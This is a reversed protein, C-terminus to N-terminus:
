TEVGRDLWVSSRNVMWWLRVSLLIAAFVLSTLLGVWIGIPGLETHLGFYFAAPFGVLWYSIGTLLMPVYVDKLGRLLQNAAVQVADFMMFAAAIPLFLGILEFVPLNKKDELNLYARAVWEPFLAIIIAFCLSVFIALGITALSALRVRQRDGAGAALGIRVGGAMSLGLPIMFVLAVVNLSIQYAAMELVGLVGMLLVCANFLMGEFFTTVSIPIGLRVLEIFRSWDLSFFNYFIEFEAAQKQRYCYFLLIAFSIGYALSSAIGAGVLGLSPAGFHGFILIYNLGGNLLTTFITLFLPFRTLALAALFNRLSWMGLGFVLSPALMVVYNRADLSLAPDQGFLIAAKEAHWFLLLVFPFIFLLEWLSMRVTHRVDSYNKPDRGLAQSVMPAVAMVPGMALMWVTFLVVVGLSSAALAEPGLRGIMLVDITFVLFGILQTMAMPVGINLLARLESQWLAGDWLSRARLFHNKFSTKHMFIQWRLQLRLFDEQAM